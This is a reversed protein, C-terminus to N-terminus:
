FPCGRAYRADFNLYEGVIQTHNRPSRIHGLPSKYPKFDFFAMKQGNQAMKAMKQGKQAM